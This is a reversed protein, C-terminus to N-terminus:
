SGAKYFYSRLQFDLQTRKQEHMVMSIPSPFSILFQWQLWCIGAKLLRQCRRRTLFPINELDSSRKFCGSQAELATRSALARLPATCSLPPSPVSIVRKKNKGRVLLDTIWQMGGGWGGAPNPWTTFSPHATPKGPAGQRRRRWGRRQSHPEPFVLLATFIKATRM